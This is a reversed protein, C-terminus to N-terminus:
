KERKAQEILDRTVKIEKPDDAFEKDIRVSQTIYDLKHKPIARILRHHQGINVTVYSDEKFMNPSRVRYRVENPASLDPSIGLITKPM